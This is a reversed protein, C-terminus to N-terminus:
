DNKKRLKRVLVPSVLTIVLAVFPFPIPLSPNDDSTTGTDKDTNSTSSSVRQERLLTMFKDYIDKSVSGAEVVKIVITDSSFRGDATKVFATVQYLGPSTFQYRFYSDFMVPEIQNIAVGSASVESITWSIQDGAMKGHQPDYASAFLSVFSGVPSPRPDALSSTQDLNLKKGDAPEWRNNKQIQVTPSLLSVSMGDGYIYESNFGDTLLLRMNAQEGGPLSDGITITTDMDTRSSGLNYWNRDDPSYQLTAFITTSNDRTNYEWKVNFPENRTVQPTTISLVGNGMWKSSYDEVKLSAIPFKSDKNNYINIATIQGDDPLWFSFFYKESVAHEDIAYGSFDPTIPFQESPADLYLVEVKHTATLKPIAAPIRRVSGDVVYSPRFVVEADKVLDLNNFYGSIVRTTRLNVVDTKIGSAFSQQALFAAQVQDQFLVSSPFAPQGATFSELKSTFAEWRYDSFWQPPNGGLCYSMIDDKTNQVLGTGTSWGLTDTFLQNLNDTNTPWASDPGSAGCGWNPDSGGNRSWQAPDTNGVHRGTNNDGMNHSIEHAMILNGSSSARTGWSAFANMGAWSPTSSGGIGSFGTITLGFIQDPIPLLDTYGFIIQLLIAFVIAGVIDELEIKLDDSSGTWVGLMDWDLEIFNINASPYVATFSNLVIQTNALSEQDPVAATGENVRIYYINLDHTKKFIFLDTIIDDSNDTDILGIPSVEAKLILYPISVWDDPLDFNVSDTLVRRDTSVPANFVQSLSGLEYIIIIGFFYATLTVEVQMANTNPNDIFVRALTQKGRILSLDNSATQVTQTVEIHDLGVNTTFELFDIRDITEVIFSNVVYESAKLDYEPRAPHGYVSGLETTIMISYSIKDGTAGFEGINTLDPLAMKLLQYYASPSFRVEISDFAKTFTSKETPNWSRVAVHAVQSVIGAYASFGNEKPDWNPISPDWIKAGGWRTPNLETPDSWIGDKYIEVRNVLGQLGTYHPNIQLGQQDIIPKEAIIRADGDNLIGNNDVDFQFIISSTLKPFSLAMYFDGSVWKPQSFTQLEEEEEVQDIGLASSKARLFLASKAPADGWEGLSFSSSAEDILGDIRPAFLGTIPEALDTTQASTTTLNTLPFVSFILLLLIGLIRFRSRM